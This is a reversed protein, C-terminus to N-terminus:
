LVEKEKENLGSESQGVNQMYSYLGTHSLLPVVCGFLHEKLTAAQSPLFVFLNWLMAKTPLHGPLTFEM